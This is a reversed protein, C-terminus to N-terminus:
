NIYKSISTKLLRIWILMILAALSIATIHYSTNTPCLIFSVGVLVYSVMQIIFYSRNLKGQIGSFMILRVLLYAGVYIAGAMYIWYHSFSVTWIVVLALHAPILQAIFPLLRKRRDDQDYLHFSLPGLLFLSVIGASQFVASLQEIPYINDSVDLLLFSHAALFFGLIFTHQKRLRRSGILIISLYIGFVAASLFVVRWMESKSFEDQIQILKCMNISKYQNKLLCICVLQCHVVRGIPLIYCGM